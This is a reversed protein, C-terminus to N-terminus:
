WIDDIRGLVISKEYSFPSRRLVRFAWRYGFVKLGVSM